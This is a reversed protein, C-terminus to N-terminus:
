NSYRHSYDYRKSMAVCKSNWSVKSLMVVSAQMERKKCNAIFVFVIRHYPTMMDVPSTVKIYITQFCSRKRIVFLRVYFGQGM